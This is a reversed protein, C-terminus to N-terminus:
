GNSFPMVVCFNRAGPPAFSVPGGPNGPCFRMVIRESGFAKLADIVFPLNFTIEGKPLDGEAVRLPQAKIGEGMPTTGGLILAEGYEFTAQRAKFTKTEVVRVLPLLWKARDLLAQRNVSLARYGDDAAEGVLGGKLVDGTNPFQDGLRASLVFGEGEVVLYHAFGADRLSVRVSKAKLGALLKVASKPVVDARSMTDARHRFGAEKLGDVEIVARHARWGDTAVAALERGAEDTNLCVGHLNPRTADKSMAPAALAFLGAFTDGPITAADPGAVHAMDAGPFTDGHAAEVTLAVAGDVTLREAEFTLRLVQGGVGAAVAEIDRGIVCAGGTTVTAPVAYSVFTDLDTAEVLLTGRGDVRLRVRDLIQGYNHKKPAVKFAAKLAAQFAKNDILINMGNMGSQEKRNARAM